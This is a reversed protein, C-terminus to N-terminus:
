HVRKRRLILGIDSLGVLLFSSPEPVSRTIWISDDTTGHTWLLVPGADLDAGFVSSVTQGAFTMSSLPTFSGPSAGFRQDWSLDDNSFGFHDGTTSAFAFGNTLSITLAATGAGSQNFQAGSGGSILLSGDGNIFGQTTGGSASGPIGGVNLAGGDTTFTLNTGDDSVLWTVVAEVQNFSLFFFTAVILVASINTFRPSATTFKMIRTNNTTISKTLKLSLESFSQTM